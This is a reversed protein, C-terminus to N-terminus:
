IPIGTRQLVYGAMLEGAVLFVFVFYLIGTASQTSRIRVTGRVLLMAGAPLAIGLLVRGLIFPSIGALHTPWDAANPDFHSWWWSLAAVAVIGRLVIWALLGDALRRLPDIPLAEGVLYWHGCIMATSGFGLLLSASLASIPHLWLGISPLPVPGHHAFTDIFVSVLGAAAAAGIWLHRQIPAGLAVILAIAGAFALLPPSLLAPEFGRAQEPFAARAAPDAGLSLAALTATLTALLRDFGRGLETGKVAWLTTVLGVATHSGLLFLTRAIVANETPIM